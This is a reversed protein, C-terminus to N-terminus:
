KKPDNQQTTEQDVWQLYPSYGQVIPLAFIEPIEYHHLQCVLSEVAEYREIQTKIIMQWERDCQIEGDWRYTSQVPLIKVCAALRAEILASAIQKAENEDGTSVFVVMHQPDVQAMDGM